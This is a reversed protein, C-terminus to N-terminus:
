SHGDKYSLSCRHQDDITKIKFFNNCFGILFRCKVLIIGAEMNDKSHGNFQNIVFKSVQNFSLQVIWELTM